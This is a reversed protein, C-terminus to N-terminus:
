SVRVPLSSFARLSNNLRVKPEGDLVLTDVRDLLAGLVAESEVRAILQGWCAHIGSGFAVHGTPKRHIDFVDPQPWVRPDRNAAALFLAVKSGEPITVGAVEVERTTTRLFLQVASAWRLAEEFASRVLSRDAKLARWAEPHTALAYIVASLGGVTTDFGASLFSRVLREGEEETIEGRDAAAFM